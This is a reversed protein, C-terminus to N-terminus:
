IWKTDDGGIYSFHYGKAQSRKGKLVDTIHRTNFYREADAVSEFIKEEKTEINKAIIKKKRNDNEKLAGDFVSKWLGNKIAHHVNEKNTCWELNDARNNNKNCDIHNVQEKHEPNDLFYEAVLRHIRFTRKIRNITVRVVQYGKDNSQTKLIIGTKDNRINGYNSISFMTDEIQKWVEM